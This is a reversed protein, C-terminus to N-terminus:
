ALFDIYVDYDGVPFQEDISLRITCIRCCWRYRWLKSGPPDLGDRWGGNQFYHYGFMFRPWHHFCLFVHHHSASCRLISPTDGWTNVLSRSRRITDLSFFLSWNKSWTHALFPPIRSFVFTEPSYTSPSYGYRLLMSLGCQFCDQRYSLFLFKKKWLVACTIVPSNGLMNGEYECM